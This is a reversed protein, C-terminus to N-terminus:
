EDVNVDLRNEVPCVLFVEDFKYPNGAGLGELSLEGENWIAKIPRTVSGTSVVDGIKYENVERGLGSWFRREKEQAIESETTHRLKSVAILQPVPFKPDDVKAAIFDETEIEIIEGIVHVENGYEFVVVDGVKFEPEVEYGIYLPPPTTM